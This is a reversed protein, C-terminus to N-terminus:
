GRQKILSIFTHCLHTEVMNQGQGQRKWCMWLMMANQHVLVANMDLVVSHEGQLM